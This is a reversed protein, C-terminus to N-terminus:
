IFCNSVVLYGVNSKPSKDKSPVIDCKYFTVDGPINDSVKIEFWYDLANSGGNELLLITIRILKNALGNFCHQLKYDM